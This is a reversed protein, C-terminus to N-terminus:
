TLQLVKEELRKGRMVSLVLVDSSVLVKLTSTIVVEPAVKAGDFRVVLLKGDNLVEASTVGDLVKINDAPIFGKAVQVRFEAAAGTMEEMSSAAVLKGKDLVATADCLEELEQLNHSSVVLTAKGKTDRIIQRVAAAIKPDLGATPEDLLVVPPSGMLAQAMSVRKSMGHSLAGCAVNWTEPLGVRELATKAEPEPKDLGSLQALYTLFSGVPWNGPLLADQPLVGVRRKLASPRGPEQGLIRLSGATPHLFGCMMSFTTTKGAGNPGILGYCQGELVQFSVDNVAIKQGFHKSVHSLEIAVGSM